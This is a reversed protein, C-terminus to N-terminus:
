LDARAGLCAGNHVNNCPVKNRGPVCVSRFANADGRRKPLGLLQEADRSAAPHFVSYGFRHRLPVSATALQEPVTRVTDTAGCQDWDGARTRCVQVM